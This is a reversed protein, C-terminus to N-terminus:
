CVHASSGVVEIMTQTPTNILNNKGKSQPTTSQKQLKVTINLNPFGIDSTKKINSCSVHSLKDDLLSMRISEMWCERDDESSAKVCLQFEGPKLVEFIFASKPDNDVKKLLCQSDLVYRSNEKSYGGTQVHNMLTAEVVM